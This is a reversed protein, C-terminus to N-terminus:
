LENNLVHFLEQLVMNLDETVTLTCDSDESETPRILCVHTDDTVGHICDFSQFHNSNMNVNQPRQSVTLNLTIFNNVLRRSGQM